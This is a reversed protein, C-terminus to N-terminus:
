FGTSATSVQALIFEPSPTLPFLGSALSTVRREEIMSAEAESPEPVFEAETEEVEAEDLDIEKEDGALVAAGAEGISEGIAGTRIGLALAATARDAPLPPELEFVGSRRMEVELYYLNNRYSIPENHAVGTIFRVGESDGTISQSGIASIVRSTLSQLRLEILRLTVWNEFRLGSDLRRFRLRLKRWSEEQPLEMAFRTTGGENSRFRVRDGVLELRDPDFATAASRAGLSYIAM